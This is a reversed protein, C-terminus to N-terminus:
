VEKLPVAVRERNLHIGSFHFHSVPSPYKKNAKNQKHCPRVIYDLTASFKCYEQRPRRPASIKPTYWLARNPISINIVAESCVNIRSFISKNQTGLDYLLNLYYVIKSKVMSDM